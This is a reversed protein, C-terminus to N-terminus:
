YNMNYMSGVPNRFVNDILYVQSYEAWGFNVIFYRITKGQSAPEDRTGYCTVAYKVKARTSPSIEKKLSVQPFRVM